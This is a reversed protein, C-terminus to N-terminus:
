IRHYDLMSVLKKITALIAGFFFIQFLIVMFDWPTIGVGDSIKIIYFPDQVAGTIPDTIIQMGRLWSFAQVFFPSLGDTTSPITILLCLYQLGYIFIMLCKVLIAIVAIGAAVPLLNTVFSGISFGASQVNNVGGPVNPLDLESLSYDSVDSDAYDVDVDTYDGSTQFLKNYIKELWTNTETHDDSSGGSYYYNNIVSGTSSVVNDDPYLVLKTFDFDKVDYWKDQYYIAAPVENWKGYYFQQCSLIRGNDYSLFVDGTTPSVSRVGGIQWTNVQFNSQIAITDSLTYSPILFYNNLYSGLSVSNLFLFGSYTSIYNGLYNNGSDYFKLELRSNNTDDTFINYEVRIKENLHDGLVFSDLSSSYQTLYVSYNMDGWESRRNFRLCICSFSNNNYSVDYDFSTPYFYFVGYDTQKLDISTRSEVLNFTSYSPVTYAFSSDYPMSSPYHFNENQEYPNGKTVRVEDIIFGLGLVQFAYDDSGYPIYQGTAISQFVIDGEDLNYCILNDNNQGFIKNAGDTFTGCLYGDLYLMFSSSPLHVISIEHWTDPSIKFYGGFASTSELFSFPNFSYYKLGNGNDVISSKGALPFYCKFDITWYDSPLNLSTDLSFYDQPLYKTLQAGGDFYGESWSQSYHANFGQDLDDEMLENHFNGNLHWIGLVDSSIDTKDYNIVSYNFIVGKIDNPTLNFSSRGDPLVFYKDVYITKSPDIRSTIAYTVYTVNNSVSYDYTDNHYTITDNSSMDYSNYSVYQNQIPDYVLKNDDDVISYPTSSPSNNQVVTSGPDYDDFDDPDGAQIAPANCWRKAVDYGFVLGRYATYLGSANAKISCVSFVTTFSLATILSFICIKKLLNKIKKKM